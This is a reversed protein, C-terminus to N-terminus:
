MEVVTAADELPPRFPVTAGRVRLGPDRLLMSLVVVDCPDGVPTFDRQKSEHVLM